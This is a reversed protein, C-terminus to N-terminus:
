IITRNATSRIAIALRVVPILSLAELRCRLAVRSRTPLRKVRSTIVNLLALTALRVPVVVTLSLVVLPLWLPMFEVEMGLFVVLFAEIIVAVIALLWIPFMDIAITVVM